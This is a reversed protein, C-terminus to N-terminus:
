QIVAVSKKWTYLHLYGACVLYCIIIIIIIIIIFSTKHPIDNEVSDWLVTLRYSPSRNSDAENPM